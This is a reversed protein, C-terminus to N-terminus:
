GEIGVQHVVLSVAESREIAEEIEERYGFPGEGPELLERKWVSRGRELSRALLQHAELQRQLQTRELQNM